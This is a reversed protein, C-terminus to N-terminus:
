NCACQSCQGAAQGQAAQVPATVIASSTIQGRGNFATGNFTTAGGGFSNAPAPPIYPSRANAKIRYGACQGTAANRALIYSQAAVTGVWSTPFGPGWCSCRFMRPTAQAAPAALAQTGPAPALAPLAGITSFSHPQGPAAPATMPIPTPAAVQAYLRSAGAVAAVIAFVAAAAAAVLASKIRTAVM